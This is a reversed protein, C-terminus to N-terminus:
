DWYTDVSEGALRARIFLYAFHVPVYGLCLVWGQPKSVLDWTREVGSTADMSLTEFGLISEIAPGVVMVFVCLYLIAVALIELSQNSSM